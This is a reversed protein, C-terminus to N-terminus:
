NNELAHAVPTQQVATPTLQAQRMLNLWAQAQENPIQAVLQTYALRHIDKVGAVLRVLEHQPQRDKAGHDRWHFLVDEETDLLTQFFADPFESKLNKEIDKMMQRPSKKERMQFLRQVTLLEKFQQVSQEKPVYQTLSQLRDIARYGLRWRTKDDFEIKMVDLPLQNAPDLGRPDIIAALVANSFQLRMFGYEWVAQNGDARSSDPKGLLTVIQEKTQGINLVGRRDFESWVVIFDRTAPQYSPSFRVAQRFQLWAQGIQKDQFYAFGLLHRLQGNNPYKRAAALFAMSAEKYQKAEVLEIGKKVAARVEPSMANGANSSQSSGPDAVQPGAEQAQTCFTLGCIAVVSITVRLFSM